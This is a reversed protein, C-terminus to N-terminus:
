AVPFAQALRAHAADVDLGITPAETMRTLLLSPWVVQVGDVTFSGGFLPWDADLFCLVGAVPVTDDCLADRVRAVQSAVGDVLKTGDRGGVRLSEVRPRPVGGEVHLEPRRGKYRKADIVWVGSPGVAIHDINARTGRIRRDHLVRFTAPLDALRKALLEEGVAGREWAMTSQPEDSLALILGGMRPHASRIRDERADRRREHERRASAGAVGDAVEVGEVGEVDEGAPDTCEVCRITKRTREYIAETGATRARGCVRCTGDYRLRMVKDDPGLAVDM